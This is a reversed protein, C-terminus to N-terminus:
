ARNKLANKITETDSYELETGTSLGRGLTSVKINNKESLPKLLANLYDATNEGEPNLNMAVIIETLGEKKLRSEITKLLEKQRIKTEPNKELIPVSGGLVFYLGAYIHAKEINELDVDRSVLTLLKRDRHPDRCISCLPSSSRDAPFFRYCSQCVSTSAKLEDLLSTLNKLYSDSRTLLFYVFRRAQRPGIGPFESFIETLKRIPDSM